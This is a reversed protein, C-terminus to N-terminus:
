LIMTHLGIHRQQHRLDIRVMQLQNGALLARPAVSQTDVDLEKCIDKALSLQDDRDYITFGPTLGVALGDIRLVRACFAHFTAMLVRGEGVIRAVRERMEGAAKNTFTIALIENPKVGHARILHAVRHTIVRTKGSGAGALILVPGDTALVAERQQPNLGDLLSSPAAM